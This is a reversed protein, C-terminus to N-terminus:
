SNVCFEIFVETKSLQAETAQLNKEIVRASEQDYSSPSGQYERVIAQLARIQVQHFILFVSKNLTPKTKPLSIM